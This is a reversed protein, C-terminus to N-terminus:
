SLSLIVNYKHSTCSRRKHPPKRGHRAGYGLNEQRHNQDRPNRLEKLALEVLADLEKLNVTILIRPM